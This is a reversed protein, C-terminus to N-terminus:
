DRTASFGTRRRRLFSVLGGGAAGVLLATGPEPMPSDLATAFQDYGYSIGDYVTLDKEILNGNADTVFTVTSLLAIARFSADPWPGM